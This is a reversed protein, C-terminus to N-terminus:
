VASGDMLRDTELAIRRFEGARPDGSKRAAKAAAYAADNLARIADTPTIKATDSM